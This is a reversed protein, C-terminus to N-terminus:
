DTVSSGVTPVPKGDSDRGRSNTAVIWWIQIGQKRNDKVESDMWRLKPRGARRSEELKSDM